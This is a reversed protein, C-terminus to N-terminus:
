EKRTHLVCGRVSPGMITTESRKDVPIEMRSMSFPVSDVGMEGTRSMTFRNNDPAGRCDPTRVLGASLQGINRLKQLM